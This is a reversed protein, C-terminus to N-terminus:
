PWLWIRYTIRVMWSAPTLIMILFPSLIGAMFSMTAVASPGRSASVPSSRPAPLATSKATGPAKVGVEFGLADVTDDAEGDVIGEDHAGPRFVLFGAIMDDEEGIAGAGEGFGEAQFEVEGGAAKADAALAEGEDRLVADDGVERDFFGAAEVDAAGLGHEFGKLGLL